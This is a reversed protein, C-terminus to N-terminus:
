IYYFEEFVARYNEVAQEAENRSLVFESGRHAIRNRIKHAEWAKDITLFDSREVQKLKAGVSDGEYGMKNMMEDLIIDAELIAQKWDNSSHSNILSQVNSWRRNHVDQTRISKSSEETPLNIIFNDDENLSTEIDLETSPHLETEKAKLLEQEKFQQAKKQKFKYVDKQKIVVYFILFVIIISIFIFFPKLIDYLIPFINLAAFIFTKNTLSEEWVWGDPSNKYDVRWWVKNGELIPGEIIRGITRLTQKGIINGNPGNRVIVDATNRIKDGLEIQGTPFFKGIFGPRAESEDFEKASFGDLNQKIKNLIPSSSFASGLLFIAVVVFIVQQLADPKEGGSGKDNAM